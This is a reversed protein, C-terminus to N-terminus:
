HRTVEFKDHCWRDLCAEMDATGCPKKLVADMGCDLWRRQNSELNSATHAVVPVRRLSEREREQRRIESTAELGDMVPMDVDMLIIDFHQESALLVAERGNCALQPMINWRSLLACGLLQQVQCDDVLMVHLHTASLM